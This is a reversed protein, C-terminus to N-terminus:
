EEGPVASEPPGTKYAEGSERVQLAPGPVELVAKGDRWVALPLGRRRHDDVLAHIANQLAATARVTLEEMSLADHNM